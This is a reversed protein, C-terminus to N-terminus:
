HDIISRLQIIYLILFIMLPRYLYLDNKVINKHIKANKANKKEGHELGVLIM